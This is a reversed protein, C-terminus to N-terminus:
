SGQTELLKEILANSQELDEQLEMIQRQLKKNDAKLTTIIAENHANSPQPTATGSSSKQAAAAIAKAETAEKQALQVALTSEEIHQALEQSKHHEEFYKHKLIDVQQKLGEVELARHFEVHSKESIGANQAKTDKEKSALLYQLVWKATQAILVFFLSPFFWLPWADIMLPWGVRFFKSPLGYEDFAGVFHNNLYHGWLVFGMTLLVLIFGLAVIKLTNKNLYNM